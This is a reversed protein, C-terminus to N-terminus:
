KKGEAKPGFTTRVAAAYVDNVLVTGGERTRSERPHLYGVVEVQQGKKLEKARLREARDGFMVISYWNTHEVDPHVGLPFSGVLQGSRTTTRYKPEAGVRGLLNVRDTETEVRRQRRPLVPLGGASIEDVPERAFLVSGDPAIEMVAQEEDNIKELRLRGERRLIRTAGELEVMVGDSNLTVGAIEPYVTLRVASADQGVEVAYVAGLTPDAHTPEVVRGRLLGTVFTEQLSAELKSQDQQPQHEISM